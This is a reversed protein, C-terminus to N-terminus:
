TPSKAVRKLRHRTTSPLKRAADPDIFLLISEIFRMSETVASRRKTQPDRHFDRTIKRGLSGWYQELTEVMRHLRIDAKRKWPRGLVLALQSLDANIQWIRITTAVTKEYDWPAGEVSRRDKYMMIDTIRQDNGERSLVETIKAVSTLLTKVDKKDLAGRDRHILMATRVAQALGARDDIQHNRALRDILEQLAHWRATGGAINTDLVRYLREQEECDDGIPAHV